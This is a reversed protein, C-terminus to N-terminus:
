RSSKGLTGAQAESRGRNGFTARWASIVEPSVSESFRLQLPVRQLDVPWGSQAITQAATVFAIPPMEASEPTVVELHILGYFLRFEITNVLPHSLYAGKYGTYHEAKWETPVPRAPATRIPAPNGNIAAIADAEWELFARSQFRNRMDQASEENKAQWTWPNANPVERVPWNMRQLESCTHGGHHTNLTEATYKGESKLLLIARAAAGTLDDPLEMKMNRHGEQAKTEINSVASIREQRIRDSAGAM